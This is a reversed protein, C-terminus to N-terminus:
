AASKEDGAVINVDATHLKGARAHSARTKGRLVCEQFLRLHNQVVNPLTMGLAAQYNKMAMNTLRDPSNLLKAVTEAFADCKDVPYFEIALREYEAMERFDHIDACVIPVGYQAAQHAVGSSGTSSSYPMLLLSMGRFLEPIKEEAVYGAFDIRPNDRHKDAVSQMYGPTMPHDCGAVVLKVNPVKAVIQPFADMLLELRKYTGWHGMALIRHEPNGRRLMDPIEPQASFIGHPSFHANKAGYKESLTKQYAPLLVTVSNAMLLGKTATWGAMRYMRPNRVGADELDIHDMLHHLTVHTPYGAARVLAPTFSGIFAAAPNLQNGFTAFLLNFWVVDPNIKRIAKLVRWPNSFDNFRWTRVVNFGPLEEAAQPLEDAIVTVEHAPDDRLTRAMHFGYENLMRESPPFASVYCIKM